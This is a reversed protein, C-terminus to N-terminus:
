GCCGRRMGTVLRLEAAPASARCGSGTDPRVAIRLDAIHLRLDALVRQLRSACSTSRRLWRSGDTARASPPARRGPLRPGGAGPRHRRADRPGPARAGRSGARERLAPSSWRCTSTRATGSPWRPCPRWTRRTSGTAPRGDLSWSASGTAWRTACRGGGALPRSDGDVELAGDRGPRHALRAGAGLRGPGPGAVADPRQGAPGAARRPRQRLRGARRATPGPRAADLDHLADRRERPRRFRTDLSEALEDLRRLLMSAERAASPEPPEQRPPASPQRLSASRAGALGALLALGGWQLWGAALAPGLDTTVAATGLGVAASTLVCLAAVRRGCTEAPTSPRSSCCCHAGTPVAPRCPWPRRRGRRGGHLEPRGGVPAAARRPDVEAGRARHRPRPGPRALGWALVVLALGQWSPRLAAVTVIAPRLGTPSLAQLHPLWRM